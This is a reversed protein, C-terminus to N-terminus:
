DVKWRYIKILQLTLLDSNNFIFVGFIDVTEICLSCVNDSPTPYHSPVSQPNSTKFSVFLNSLASIQSAWHEQSSNLRLRWASGKKKSPILTLRQNPSPSYSFYVYRLTYLASSKWLSRMHSTKQTVQPIMVFRTLSPLLKQLLLQLILIITSHRYTMCLHHTSFICM